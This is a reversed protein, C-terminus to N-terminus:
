GYKEVMAKVEVDADRSSLNAYRQAMALTAHGMAAALKVTSVNEGALM